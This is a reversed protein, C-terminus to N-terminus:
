GEERKIGIREEGRKKKIELRGRKENRTKGRREKM